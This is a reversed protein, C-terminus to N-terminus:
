IKKNGFLFWYPFTVVHNFKKKMFRIITKDFFFHDFIKKEYKYKVKICFKLGFFLLRKHLMYIEINEIVNDCKSFIAHNKCIIPAMIM